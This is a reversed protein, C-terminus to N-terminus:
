AAPEAAAPVIELTPIKGEPQGKKLPWHSRTVKRARPCRRGRRPRLRQQGLAQLVEDWWRRWARRRAGRSPPVRALRVRVVELCGTFSLTTAPVHAQRAAQLMAWRLTYHGLLLADVEQCVRRPDSARVQMPRDALQAKVEAFALEQEWRQHYLAVLEAAPYQAAELLSTLLRSQHVQGREDTWRYCLVRVPLARAQKHPGRRPRVVSLYSGDDLVAQIPFKPGKQLRILLAYGGDRAGQWLAFAHFNRDALLLSGAPVRRLLRRALQVESRRYGRALWDLFAHTGVECLAVVRAQPYGGRGHQNRPRGFTRENAATDALTFTTGDLALLRRGRYFAYGDHALAALPRVVRRRLWRLPAWGLRQRARYLASETPRARRAPLFWGVLWALGRHPHFFWTLLLGLLLDLPLQRVRTARGRAAVARRLLRTPFLTRLARLFQYDSVTLTAHRM